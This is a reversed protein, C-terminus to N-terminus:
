MRDCEVTAMNCFHKGFNWYPSRLLHTVTSYQKKSNDARVKNAKIVMCITSVSVTALVITPTSVDFMKLKGVRAKQVVSFSTAYVEDVIVSMILYLRM